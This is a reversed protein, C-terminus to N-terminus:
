LSKGLRRAFCADVSYAVFRKRRISSMILVFLMSPSTTLSRCPLVLDQAARRHDILPSTVQGGGGGLSEAAGATGGGLRAAIGGLGFPWPVSGLPGIAPVFVATSNPM